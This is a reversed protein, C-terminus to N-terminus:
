GFARSRFSYVPVRILQIWTPIESPPLVIPEVNLSWRRLFLPLHHVHWLRNLVWDCISATPFEILFTDKTLESVSVFDDYDWLRNALSQFVRLPPAPGLFQGVLANRFQKVGFDVVESPVQLVEDVLIPPHFELDPDVSGVFSAWSKRKLPVTDSM